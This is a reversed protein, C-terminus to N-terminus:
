LCSFLTSFFTRLHNFSVENGFRMAILVSVFNMWSPIRTLEILFASIM